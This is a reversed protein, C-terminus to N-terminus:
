KKLEKATEAAPADEGALVVSVSSRNVEVKVNDAIKIILTKDNVKVVTAHIGGSTVVRSGVKISDLMQQRRKAEKQQSRFIVFYMIIFMVIVMGLPGALLRKVQDFVSPAATTQAVLTMLFTNM